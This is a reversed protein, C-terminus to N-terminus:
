DVDVIAFAFAERYVFAEGPDRPGDPTCERFVRSGWLLVDPATNFPPIERETVLEGGSTELRVKMM